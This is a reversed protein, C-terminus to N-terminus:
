TSLDLHISHHTIFNCKTSSGIIDKCQVQIGTMRSFKSNNTWSVAKPQNELAKVNQHECGKVITYFLRLNYLSLFKQM